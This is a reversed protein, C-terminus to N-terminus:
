RGEENGTDEMPLKRYKRDIERRHERYYEIASDIQKETLADNSDMALDMLYRGLYRNARVIGIAKRLAKSMQKAFHREEAAKTADSDESWRYTMCKIGYVGAEILDKHLTRLMSTDGSVGSDFTGYYVLEAAMGGLGIAFQRAAEARTLSFGLEEDGFEDETTEATDIRNTFTTFGATDGYRIASISGHNGELVWGVLSHGVEHALIRRLNRTSKWRKGITEFNMENVLKTFDDVDVHERSDIYEILANNVLTRIDAGSMGGLKIALVKLNLNEFLPFGKTYFRLIDERSGADPLDIKLKKDMRGSRLLAEPLDDYANTSAMTLVGMGKQVGDLKTLLFQLCARSTDSTFKRSTVLETLEDLYVISPTSEEAKRYAKKLESLVKNGDSGAKFPIFPVGCEAAIVSAILTKGCGPPGQLIIGRPVQIGMERYRDYNKILNIVKGLEKKEEPYGAIDDLTLRKKKRPM